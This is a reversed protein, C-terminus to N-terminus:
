GKSKLNQVHHVSIVTHKFKIGKREGSWKYEQLKYHEGSGHHQTMRSTKKGGKCM